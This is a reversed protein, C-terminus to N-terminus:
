HDKPGYQSVCYLVNVKAHSCLESKFFYINITCIMLMPEARELNNEPM